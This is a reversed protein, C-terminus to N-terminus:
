GVIRGFKGLDLGASRGFLRGGIGALQAICLRVARLAQLDDDVCRGIAVSM